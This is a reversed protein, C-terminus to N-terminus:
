AECGNAECIICYSVGCNVCYCHSGGCVNCAGEFEPEDLDPEHEPLSSAVSEGAESVEDASPPGVLVPPPSPPPM